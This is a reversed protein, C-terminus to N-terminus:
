DGDDCWAEFEHGSTRLGDLLFTGGPIPEGSGPLDTTKMPSELDPKTWRPGTRFAIREVAAVPALFVEDSEVSGVRLRYSARPVDIDLRFPVWQGAAYETFKMREGQHLYSISGGDELVLRIPFAGNRDCLEVFLSAGDTQEARVSWEVVVKTSRPFVREATAHGYPDHHGLLLCHGPGDPKTVTHVPSWPGRHVNWGELRGGTFEEDVPDDVTSVIPVPVRTVWIDEKNASYTLWLADDPTGAASEISRMYSLGFDKLLGDYRRPPVEGDIAVLDRYNLGDDSTVAALPWRMKGTPSPNYVLAYRGDSTRQAWAKGGSTIMGAIDHVPEWSHGDDNSIAARASKWVAVARGDPLHYAWPAREGSVSFFGDTSRDEEWWQMTVLPDALLEDCAAIFGADPAETYFPYDTNSENWGAHRNYRLFYIDGFGGDAHIERVVRGIGNGDNPNVRYYPCIGYFGLVLLRGDKAAYFGMRQHMVSYSGAPLPHESPNRYIGDPVVYQPFVVEPKGWAQGDESTMLMTQGPPVHESVPDTLYELYFTGNWWALMPAHNYTWGFDDAYEPHERNARMVQTSVVGVAPPLGGDHRSLDVVRAHVSVKDTM